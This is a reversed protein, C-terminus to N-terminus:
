NIYIISSNTYINYYRINFFTYNYIEDISLNINNLIHCDSISLGSYAYWKSLPVQTVNNFGFNIREDIIEYYEKNEYLYKIINKDM